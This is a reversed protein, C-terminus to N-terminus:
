YQEMAAEEQAMQNLEMQAVQELQALEEETMNELQEPTIGHMQAIQTLTEADLQPQGDWLRENLDDNDLWQDENAYMGEAGQMMEQEDEALDMDQGYYYDMLEEDMEGAENIGVGNECNEMLELYVENHMQFKKTKIEQKWMDDHLQVLDLTKEVLGRIVPNKDNFLELIVNVIQTQELMIERTVQYMLLRYYTFLIQQVMEDDEQKAGLLDHLLGLLYSRSIAECCKENRALTGILMIGELVMDDEAGNSLLQHLFELFNTETIVQDWKNTNIYVLTGIIEIQLNENSEKALQIFQEFYKEYIDANTIPGFQSLNRVVRFLLIDYNQFARKILEELQDNQSMIEACKSETTLNIALSILEKGVIQEPFHIILQYVLPICSTYAFTNKIKDESSLHYLIRLLISRYPAVKLLEVLKPIMGVASISQRIEQDFSINFLLRLSITTLLNNQCPIFRNLKKVINGEVMDNKNTGFVSLKKLFNLCIYILDPNNREVLNLLLNVIKRNKMKKEIQLDEALNLLIHISVFLVKEQKMITLALRKEEKKFTKQMEGLDTDPDPQQKVADLQKKM